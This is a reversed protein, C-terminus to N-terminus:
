KSHEEPAHEPAYGAGKDAHRDQDRECADARPMRRRARDRNQKRRIPCPTHIRVLSRRCGQGSVSKSCQAANGRKQNSGAGRQGHRHVFRQARGGPVGFIAQEIHVAEAAGLARQHQYGERAAALAGRSEAVSHEAAHPINVHPRIPLVAGQQILDVQQSTDGAPRKRRSMEAEVAGFGELGEWVLEEVRVDLRIDPAGECVSYKISSPSATM